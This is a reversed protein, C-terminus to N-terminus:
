ARKSGIIMSKIKENFRSEKLLQEITVHMRYQWKNFCDGPVNIREQRPSKGRLEADMAMWDQFALICLMSPSYLHRAVIEGALIASLQEPANGEKQLMTTYFRQTRDAMEEWWLRLPAMDHTSITDVSLYPNAELHAFEVGKEKPMTQVCLTLIRMSDLVPEVCEPLQGLDEACPLMKEGSLTMSLRRAAVRGWMETHREYYYDNYLRMFAARDDPSLMEFLPEDYARVRPHYMGSRRTDEVFLVSAAIKYLGDRIWLSSEDRCDGFRNRIKKQTDYDAKLDYLQYGKADLYNDKVYQAHLGFVKRIIRDNIFPRTYLEKRFTLGFGEIDDASYPMSPSFHGLLGDVSSDPIEWVRFFGLVHDIRFAGYYQEMRALRHRWWKCGDAMMADWNYTPFCWNQGRANMKDPPSGTQSDLNFYRGEAWAEVSDHSIGVPIDGMLTVGKERAYNAADLLQTHLLYQVYCIYLAEEHNETLLAKVKQRDYVAYKKWDTFRATHFKDRLICFATYPLLWDQNSKRFDAFGKDATISERRDHFLQTLYRSKVREVAEYDTVAMDNLEQRRRSYERMADADDLAGAAELDVYQPHLANVSITNYPYSDSWNHQMTTDNVPLTQIIRMGTAVAWDVMRRLDGFDGVGCSHESRLSFVPIVVGAAKWRSEEVRLNGGDLVMVEGEGMSGFFAQRNDGGEWQLLQRTTTDVVIYKYELTDSIAEVNLSLTWVTQGAYQMLQYRSPQWDGISPNNGCLAVAQGKKIQPASLRFLATKRFLPMATAKVEEIAGNGATVAYADTFLHSMMPIDRWGDSLIYNRSPDCPLLRPVMDFERRAVEGTSYEVQYAYRIAVIPKQRTPMAEADATWWIGDSTTMAIDSRREQGDAGVLRLDIHMSEGWATNYQISFKLKM